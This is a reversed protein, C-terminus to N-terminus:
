RLKRAVIELVGPTIMRTSPDALLRHMEERMSKARAADVAALDVLRRLGVDMFSAPWQWFPDAPTIAHVIPTASEIEFGLSELWSPLELAIDPEGGSSRWHDIVLRVFEEFLASRPLVRWSAYNFYEHSVFAGGRTIAHAVRELVARPHPVFALVWRCWAGDAVREGLEAAELDSEVVRINDFGRERELRELKDLFRRSRDVAIVRGTPGAIEALDMTAYGPGCGVDILTDGRAFGARRWAAAARARWVSHQVGLRAIEDDHTGLVYDRELTTM